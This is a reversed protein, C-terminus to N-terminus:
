MRLVRCSEERRQRTCGDMRERALSVGRWVGFRQMRSCTLKKTYERRGYKPTEQVGLPWMADLVRRRLWWEEVEVELEVVGV